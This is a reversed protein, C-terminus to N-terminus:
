TLRDIFLVLDSHSCHRTWAKDNFVHLAFVAKAHDLDPAAAKCAPWLHRIDVDRRNGDCWGWVRWWLRRLIRMM